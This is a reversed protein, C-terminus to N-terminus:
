RAYYIFMPIFIILFLTLLCCKLMEIYGIIIVIFAQTNLRQCDSKDPTNYYQVNGSIYFGVQTCLNVYRLFTICLSEKYYSKISRIQMLCLLVEVFYLSSIAIMFNRPNWGLVCPESTNTGSIIIAIAIITNFLVDNYLGKM